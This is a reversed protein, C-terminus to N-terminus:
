FDFDCSIDEKRFPCLDNDEAQGNYNLYTKMKYIQCDKPKESKCNICNLSCFEIIECLMDNDLKDEFNLENKSPSYRSVLRLKNMKGKNTISRKYAEGLREFVSDSFEGVYKLVKKLIAKEKDTTGNSELFTKVPIMASMLILHECQEESNLYNRM